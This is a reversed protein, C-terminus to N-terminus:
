GDTITVIVTGDLAIRMLSEDNNNHSHILGFYCDLDCFGTNGNFDKLRQSVCVLESM